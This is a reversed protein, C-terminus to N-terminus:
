LSFHFTFSHAWYLYQPWSVPNTVSVQIDEKMNVWSWLIRHLNKVHYHESDSVSCFSFHFQLRLWFVSIMASSQNSEHLHRRKRHGWQEVFNKISVTHHISSVFLIALFIYHSHITSCEITTCSHGFTLQSVCILYHNTTWMVVVNFWMCFLNFNTSGHFKV